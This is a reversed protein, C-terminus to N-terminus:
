NKNTILGPHLCPILTCMKISLVTSLTYLKAFTYNILNLIGDGKSM